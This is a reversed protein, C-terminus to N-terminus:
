NNQRKNKTCNPKNVKREIFKMRLSLKYFRLVSKPDINDSKSLSAKSFTSTM